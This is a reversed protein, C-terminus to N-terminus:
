GAVKATGSPRALTPPDHWTTFMWLISHGSGADATLAIAPHGDLASSRAADEYPWAFGPPLAPPVCRRMGKVLPQLLAAARGGDPSLQTGPAPSPTPAPPTADNAARASGRRRVGLLSRVATRMQAEDATLYYAGYLTTDAGDLTLRQIQAGRVARALSWLEDLSDIDSTTAEAFDRALRRVRLLDLKHALSQRVAERIVLQQRAARYIDSDYHRYRAFALAQEGDLKQYGPQLDIDAFNTEFTGVNKNFYRQDVPIWVGGVDKVLKRFGRFDVEVFHVIKVGFTERVTRTLLKEGGWEFAMNIRDHGHGPIEVYLDRPISLLAVRNRKPDVRALIATDSRQGKQGAARPRHDSGILLITQADAEPPAQVLTRKPKRDLEPSVADVVRGKDGARLQDLLSSAQWWAVGAAAAAVVVAVGLAVALKKWLRM